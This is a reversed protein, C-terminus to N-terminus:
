FTFRVGLSWDDFKVNRLEDTLFLNSWRDAALRFYRSELTVMAGPTLRYGIGAIAQWSLAVTEENYTQGDIIMQSVGAGLGLYPVFRTPTHFDVLVNFMASRVELSDTITTTVHGDLSDSDPHDTTATIESNIEGGVNKRYIGELELRLDAVSDPYAMTYGISAGAVFGYDMELSRLELHDNLGRALLVTIWTGSVPDFVSGYIPDYGEWHLGALNRVQSLGGRVSWYLGGDSELYEKAQALPACVFLVAFGFLFAGVSKM